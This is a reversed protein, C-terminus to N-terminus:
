LALVMFLTAGIMAIGASTKDAAGTFPPPIPRGPTGPATGNRPPQTGSGSGQPPVSGTPGSPKGPATGTPLIGNCLGKNCTNFACQEDKTCAANFNGCRRILMANSAWCQAGGACQKDDSCQEGLKLSGGTPPQPSPTPPNSISSKSSTTSPNGTPPKTSTTPPTTSSTPPTTTSTPPNAPPTSTIPAGNCLGSNCANFACQANSTCAANFGGCRKTAMVNSAFCQAGGACDKDIGCQEGLKLSGIPVNIPPVPPQNGPPTTGTAPPGNCLGNLCTQGSCQSDKTCAANFGGCKKQGLVNSAFCQAGGACEADAGCPSGVPLNSPPEPKPNPDYCSKDGTKCYTRECACSTESQGASLCVYYRRDCLDTIQRRDLSGARASVSAIALASFILFSRM